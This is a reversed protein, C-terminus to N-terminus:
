QAIERKGLESQRLLTKIRAIDRRLTRLRLPNDVKQTGSRFRLKWLEEEFERLKMSLEDTTMQRMEGKKM